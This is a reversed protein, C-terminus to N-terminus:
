QMRLRMGIVIRRPRLTRPPTAYTGDLGVEMRSCAAALGLSADAHTRGRRLRPGRRRQQKLGGRHPRQLGTLLDDNGWVPLPVYRGISPHSFPGAGGRERRGKREERPWPAQFADGVSM